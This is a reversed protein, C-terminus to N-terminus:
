RGTPAGARLARRRLEDFFNSVFVWTPGRGGARPDPQISALRESTPDWDIARTDSPLDGWVRPASAAFSGGSVDYSVTMIRDHSRFRLERTSAAWRPQEGADSSIQWTGGPGPFPRVYVEYSGSQNSTYALWRGDPSFQPDLEQYPTALFPRATGPRLGSTEDGEIPLVMLDQVTGPRVETFALSRGGPHWSGHAQRNRSTTLPEPEGAGDARQWVFNMAAVDPRWSLWALRRGDPTWVPEVDTDPDFTLRTLSDRRLDFIWIDAPRQEEIALAIRNGDPSVRLDRYGAVQSRIPRAQGARDLWVIVNAV